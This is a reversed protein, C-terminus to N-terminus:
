PGEEGVGLASTEEKLVAKEREIAVTEGQLTEMMMAEMSQKRLHM